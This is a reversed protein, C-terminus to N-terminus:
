RHRRWLSGERWCESHVWIRLRYIIKIREFHLHHAVGKIVLQISDREQRIGTKITRKAPSYVKSLRILYQLTGIWLKTSLPSCLIAYFLKYDDRESETILVKLRNCM